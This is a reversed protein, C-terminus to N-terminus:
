VLVDHQLITQNTFHPRLRADHSIVVLTSGETECLQRILSIVESCRFDDLSSTPEDALLIRPKNILARALSLRQQEGASLRYCPSHYHGELQLRDLLEKIRTYDTGRGALKMALALNESVSLAMIFHATQFVVGINAARFKDLQGATLSCIDTGAINVTGSKPKLIGALIHMFTTKGSGSLGSILLHNGEEVNIDPFNWKHGADYQFYVNHTSIM